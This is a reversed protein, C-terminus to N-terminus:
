ETVSTMLRAINFVKTSCVRKVHSKIKYKPAMIHRSQKDWHWDTEARVLVYHDLFERKGMKIERRAKAKRKDAM